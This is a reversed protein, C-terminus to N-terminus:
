NNNLLHNIEDRDKNEIIYVHEINTMDNFLKVSIEYFNGAYDLKFDAVIGIPINKPFIASMGSTVITDGKSVPAIKQIDILQVFEPNEGNWTLIGSHNSKKLQASIRCTTNLVSIITAYRRGAKTVIGVIGKSSVVGFDEQISDKKGRNVLLINDLSAYSNKVINASTFKYTGSYSLSDLFTFDSAKQTNHLLQNLKNNEETLIKNQYKLDFYGGINNLASYIGGTFFNASNIFKSKHYSHSQITFLISIAFLLLFLLFNKNRIIFNIIQQM